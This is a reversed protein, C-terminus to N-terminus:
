LYKLVESNTPDIDLILNVYKSRNPPDEECKQLLLIIDQDLGIGSGSDPVPNSFSSKCYICVSVSGEKILEISGCNTCKIVKM